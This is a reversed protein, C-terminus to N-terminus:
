GFRPKSQDALLWGIIREAAAEATENIGDIWVEYKEPAQYPSHIGTFNQLEGALAKRYLGKPDRKICEEIPVDVFIEVFEDPAVMSRVLARESAFPSIFCCIVVLGAEVFLKAVEGVRRINEVRDAETFGLDRNLGHRLNDGDLLMTYMGRAHLSKEVLDAITSKGSGSLGTFWVVRPKQQTLRARAAKDVAHHQRHINTARRLGFSIMGAGATANTTRDILIFSGTRRNETYPDFAVPRATSINCFGIENLALTRGSSYDLTNVDIKHKLTTISAPTEATGVRMLYSRGPLMEETSMWLIHAALQDVCQPRADPHTLVDGRTVDIESALTLTVADGPLALDRDGDFTVIRAVKAMVGTSAVALDDGTRVQGSAVTGTFGRFDLNPRNVWQVPFRFPKAALDRVVDATELHQLLTPGDYWPTRDSRITVNDGYRASLPIPCIATFGLTKAFGVYDSVIKYFLEGAFGALDMKNVALVVTRIGLMSCIYSHRKTQTLIGKRADVLIVALDATSAGTAMNRTYQEHGPTDAVIFARRPTTFYRYAVDITIGQEREAELGDVLLALDVDDGATGHKRSDREVASLQDEFILKSDYLLRGILSSKGDDVSGCTLFRLLEKEQGPAQLALDVAKPLGPM